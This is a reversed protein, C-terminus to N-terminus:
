HRWTPFLVKVEPELVIFAQEINVFPFVKIVKKGVEILLTLWDDERSTYLAVNLQHHTENIRGFFDFMNKGLLMAIM